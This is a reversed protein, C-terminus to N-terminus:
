AADECDQMAALGDYQALLFRVRDGEPGQPCLARCASIVKEVNAINGSGRTVFDAIWNRSLGARKCLRGMGLGPVAQQTAEVIAVTHRVYSMTM